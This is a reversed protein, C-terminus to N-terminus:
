WYVMAAIKTKHIHKSISNSLIPQNSVTSKQFYIFIYSFIPTFKCICHSLWLWNIELLNLGIDARLEVNNDVFHLNILVHLNFTYIEHMQWIKLFIWRPDFNLYIGDKAANFLSIPDVVVPKQKPSLKIIFDKIITILAAKTQAHGFRMGVCM